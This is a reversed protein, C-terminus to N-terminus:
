RQLVVEESFFKGYRSIADALATRELESPSVFFEPESIIGKGKLARKWTGKIQGDIVVGPDLGYNTQQIYRADLVASRDQYAVTYEDFPPLLLVAPAVIHEGPLAPSFWYAQGAIVESALEPGVMALGARAEAVTLNSWWAFDRATAPGHSTFYRRVLEALAEDRTLSRSAPVLEDLLAYTFQKGRRAGSVVVGDLEAHMMLFTLRLGETAIGAQRLAAALERRTLQRGGELTKIIVQESAAITAGDLELRRYWSANGAIIRPATLSLLWRVDEAAVFHWTRRMSHTRVIRGEAMAREVECASGNRMRLGLAWLAGYYDQAQVAGLWRVVEEPKRPVVSTLYQGALRRHAIYRDPM